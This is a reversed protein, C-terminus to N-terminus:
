KDSKSALWSAQMCGSIQFRLNFSAYLLRRPSRTVRCLDDEENMNMVQEDAQLAWAEVTKILLSAEIEV